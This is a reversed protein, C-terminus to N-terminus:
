KKKLYKEKSYETRKSFQENNEVLGSIIESGTMEKKM